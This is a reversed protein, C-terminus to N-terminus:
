SARVVTKKSVRDIYSTKPGTKTNDASGGTASNSQCTQIGFKVSDNNKTGQKGYEVSRFEGTFEAGM